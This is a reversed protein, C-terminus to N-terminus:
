QEKKEKFLNNNSMLVSKSTKLSLSKSIQNKTNLYELDVRFEGYLSKICCM